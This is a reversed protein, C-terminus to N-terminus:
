INFGIKPRQPKENKKPIQVMGIQIQSTHIIIEVNKNDPLRGFIHLLLPGNPFIEDIIIRGFHPIIFECDNDPSLEKIFEDLTELIIKATGTAQWDEYMEETRKRAEQERMEIIEDRERLRESQEQISMGNSM